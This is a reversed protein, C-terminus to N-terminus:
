RLTGYPLGRGALWHLFADELLEQYRGAHVM